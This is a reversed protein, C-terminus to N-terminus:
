FLPALLRAALEKAREYKSRREFESLLIEKSNRMDTMFDRELRAITDRDYLVAMIEFNSFFSRMDMNATGVTALLRDIILTKAHVFGKQYQYFRVGAQMLEHVYSMSAWHIIRADPVGPLIIRVDVGSVAATKLAMAISPDPIFYPTTIYIRSRAATMAGFFVEQVAYWPADPGSAILQVTEEGMCEHEPLYMPDLLTKGSAFVWDTAFTHQLYYVSDGGLRIHTDRWYGLAPDAGLYEDGINIGGLFGVTGDVVVIKRHNRYNLRKDFFAILPPLFGYVEVGARKLEKVYRGSLKYSGVGDYLLRVPVGEAAKRMMLQQFKKGIEDDRVIYYEVHIFSRAQEMAALIAEYTSEGDSYIEVSNCAMIPSGPINNLLGLLRHEGYIDCRRVADGPGAKRAKHWLARRIEAIVRREKRRMQKRRTYKKALFYYMIFGIIPLVFLVSLWAVAKAPNRFELLLITAIQFIFLGLALTLWMM